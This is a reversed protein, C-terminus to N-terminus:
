GVRQSGTRLLMGDKSRQPQAKNGTRSIVVAGGNSGVRLGARLKAVANEPGGGDGKWHHHRHDIQGALQPLDGPLSQERHQAAM